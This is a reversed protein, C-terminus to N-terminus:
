SKRGDFGEGTLTFEADKAITVEKDFNLVFSDFQSVTEEDAPSWSTPIVNDLPVIYTVMIQHIKSATGGNEFLLEFVDDEGDEAYWHGFYDWRGGSSKMDLDGCTSSESFEFKILPATSMLKMQATRFIGLYPVYNNEKSDVVVRAGMPQSGVAFSLTVYGDDSKFNWGTVIVESGAEIGLNTISPILTKPNAFDFTYTVEKQAFTQVSLLTFLSLLFHKM